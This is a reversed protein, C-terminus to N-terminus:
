NNLAWDRRRLSTEAEKERQKTAAAISEKAAERDAKHKVESRILLTRRPRLPPSPDESPENEAPDVAVIAVM